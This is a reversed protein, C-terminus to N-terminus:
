MAIVRRGDIKFHVSGTSELVELLQSINEFRSITGKFVEKKLDEDEFEVKVDYWRAAQKMIGALDQGSFMFLGNKWAIAEETDAEHVALKNMVMVSQEGPRITVSNAPVNQGNGISSVRVSGELLTTKISKEDAYGSINFHTGLVEVEQKGTAVKFPRHKDKSVEFYAEGNLEVKREAAAFQTPYKLSSAANLWVKTGDPLNVMYQGGNPTTITNFQDANGPATNEAVTYVLQGDKTKTIIIGAQKALEGNKASGLLIRSGDSLTLYAKNSGPAIDEKHSGAFQSIKDGHYQYFFLGTSFAILVVAAAAYTYWRPYRASSSKTRELLTAWMEAKIGEHDIEGQSHERKDTERLYWSEVLKKEEPTCNGELYKKYLIEARENKM